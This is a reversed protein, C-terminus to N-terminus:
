KRNIIKSNPLCQIRGQKTFKITKIKRNRSTKLCLCLYKRSLPAFLLQISGSDPDGNISNFLKTQDMERRGYICFEVCVYVKEMSQM